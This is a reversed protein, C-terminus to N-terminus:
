SYRTPRLGPGLTGKFRIQHIESCLQRGM